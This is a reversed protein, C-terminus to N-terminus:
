VEHISKASPLSTCIMFQEKNILYFKSSILRKKDNEKHRHGQQTSSFLNYAVKSLISKVCSDTRRYTQIKKDARNRM